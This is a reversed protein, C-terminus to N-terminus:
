FGYYVFTSEAGLCLVGWIFALSSLILSSIGLKDKKRYNNEPIFSIFCAVFIFVVMSFGRVNESLFNLRFVDYIFRSEILNFTSVMGESISTDQMLLIKYLIAKWQGISEVSFLLWLVSVIGFTCLWRIPMFIKNEIKEFMRGLCSFVGHLLGWLIFTWNAGHWIGSVIFVIMTNLYTFFAGKRSGGLPIYIYKTLFSTLSVHWRKWFDRISIAKYPSDFNMPLEINMMKSVGIAMDSYGSFDFYIEFSYFLVLLMCDMATASAFNSYGWTVAKAFTDALIVKKALGLSFIKIGCALNLTNIKINKSDNLQSLFSVPDTIPGMVLKPYFLIYALYDLLKASSINGNSTEVIYAIQQFTYFSIGLPLIIEHFEASHRLVRSINFAIFGLYKFYLLFGVNAAVALIVIIRKHNKLRIILLTLTYNVLISIGLYILMNLRGWSYFFLSAIIIVIKGIAPKIRNGGFYLIVSIPLFFFIFEYSNFQM